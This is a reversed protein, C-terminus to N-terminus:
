LLLAVADQKGRAAFAVRDNRIKEVDPRTGHILMDFGRLPTIRHRRASLKDHPGQEPALDAKALDEVLAAETRNPAGGAAPLQALSVM